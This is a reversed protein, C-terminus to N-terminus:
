YLASVKGRAIAEYRERSADSHDSRGAKKIPAEDNGGPESASLQWLNLLYRENCNLRLPFQRKSNSLSFTPCNQQEISPAPWQPGRRKPETASMWPPPFVPPKRPTQSLLVRALSENDQSAARGSHMQFWKYAEERKTANLFSPFRATRTPRM